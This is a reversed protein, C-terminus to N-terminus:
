KSSSLACSAEAGRKLLAAVHASSQLWPFIQAIALHFPMKWLMDNQSESNPFPRTSSFHGFICIILNKHHKSNRRLGLSMNYAKKTKNQTWIHELVYTLDPLGLSVNIVFHLCFASANYAFGWTATRRIDVCKKTNQIIALVKSFCSKRKDLQLVNMKMAKRHKQHLDPSNPLRMKSGNQSLTVCKEIIKVHESIPSWFKLGNGAAAACARQPGPVPLDWCDWYCVLKALANWYSPPVAFPPSLFRGIASNTAPSSLIPIYTYVTHINYLLIYIYIYYYYYYM